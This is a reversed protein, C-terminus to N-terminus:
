GAVSARDVPSVVGRRIVMSVFPRRRLSLTCFSRHKSYRPGVRELHFHIEMTNGLPLLRLCSTVVGGYETTIVISVFERCPDAMEM